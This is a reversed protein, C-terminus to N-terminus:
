LWGQDTYWKLTEAIGQALRTPCQCGTERTLLSSDCVWGPAKLEAYKQLNLLTPKGTLRSILEQSLCVPWLLAPTLPLPITWRGTQSAIEEAMQRATVIEDSSVFYTKGAAAPHVLTSAVVEALDKVYVLSLEQSANPKPLCHAHVAEFM